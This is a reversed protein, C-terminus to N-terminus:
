ISQRSQTEFYDYIDMYVHLDFTSIGIKTKEFKHLM